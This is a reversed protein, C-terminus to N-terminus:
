SLHPRPTAPAANFNSGSFDNVFSVSHRRWFFLLPLRGCFLTVVVGGRRDASKRLWCVNPELSTSLHVGSRAVMSECRTHRRTAEPFAASAAAASSSSPQRANPVAWTAMYEQSCLANVKNSDQVFFQLV